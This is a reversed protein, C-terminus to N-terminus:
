ASALKKKKDMVRTEKMRVNKKDKLKYPRNFAAQSVKFHEAMKRIVDKSLGKKYHLIESVYGKSMELLAVLDKPKMKREEMLSYLLRIPDVEEFSNHERDWKEILLTLLEIEEQIAKNSNKGLLIELDKCYQNYQSRNKIVKYKLTEM